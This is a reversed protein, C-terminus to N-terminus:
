LRELPAYELALQRESGDAFHVSVIGPELRTVVGEGFTSHRVNDGISLQPVDTRPTM